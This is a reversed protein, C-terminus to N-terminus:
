FYERNKAFTQLNSFINEIKFNNGYKYFQERFIQYIYNCMLAELDKHCYVKTFKLSNVTPHIPNNNYTKQFFEQFESYIKSNGLNKVVM